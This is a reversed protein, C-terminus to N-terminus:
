ILEEERDWMENSILELYASPNHTAESDWIGGDQGPKCTRAM